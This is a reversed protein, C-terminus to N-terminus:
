SRPKLSSPSPLRFEQTQSLLPPRTARCKRVSDVTQSGWHWSGGTGWGSGGGRGWCSPRCWLLESSFASLGLGGACARLLQPLDELTHHHHQTAELVGEARLEPVLGKLQPGLISRVPSWVARVEHLGADRGRVGRQAKESKKWRSQRAQERDGRRETDEAEREREKRGGGRQREGMGRTEKGKGSLRGETRSGM